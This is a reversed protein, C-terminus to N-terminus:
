LFHIYKTDDFAFLMSMEPEINTGHSYYIKHSGMGKASSNTIAFRNYCHEGMCYGYGPRYNWVLSDPGEDASFKKNTHMLRVDYWKGNLGTDPLTRNAYPIQIEIQGEKYYKTATKKSRCM